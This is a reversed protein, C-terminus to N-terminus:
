PNSLALATIATYRAIPPSPKGSSPYSWERLQEGRKGYIGIISGDDLVFVPSSPYIAGYFGQPRLAAVIEGTTGSVQVRYIVSKDLHTRKTTNVVLYTGDWQVAGWHGTAKNLNIRQAKSSGNALEALAFYYESISYGAPGSIFLNGSDDYAAFLPLLPVGYEAPTGKRAGPWILLQWGGDINTGVVALDGSSPDVACGAPSLGHANLGYMPKTAGPSFEDIHSRSDRRGTIWVNGSSDSCVGGVISYGTIRTLEKDQQLSLISVVPYSRTGRIVRHVVYLLPGSGSADRPRAGREGVASASGLTATAPVQNQAEGCATLIAASLGTWLLRSWIAM